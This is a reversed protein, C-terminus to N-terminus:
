LTVGFVASGDPVFAIATPHTANQDHLGAQGGGVAIGAGEVDVVQEVIQEGQAPIDAVEWGVVEEPLGVVGDGQRFPQVAADLVHRGAAAAAAGGVTLAQEGGGEVKGELQVLALEPGAALGVDDMRDGDGTQQAVDAGARRHDGGAEEM